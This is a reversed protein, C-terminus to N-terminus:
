GSILRFVLPSPLPLPYPTPPLPSPLTSLPSPLSTRLCLPTWSPRLSLRVKSPLPVMKFRRNLNAHSSFGGISTQSGPGGVGGGMVAGSGQNLSRRRSKPSDGPNPYSSILIFHSQTPITFMTIM